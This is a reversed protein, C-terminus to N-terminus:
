EHAAAANESEHDKAHRFTTVDRARTSFGYAEHCPRRARAGYELPSRMPSAGMGRLSARNRQNVEPEKGISDTVKTTARLIARPSVIKIILVAGSMTMRM